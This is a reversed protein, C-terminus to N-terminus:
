ASVMLTRNTTAKARAATEQATALGLAEAATCEMKFSFWCIRGDLEKTSIRSFSILARSGRSIDEIGRLHCHQQNPQMQTGSQNWPSDVDAAGSVVVVVVVVSAGKWHVETPSKASRSSQLLNMMQWSLASPWKMSCEM